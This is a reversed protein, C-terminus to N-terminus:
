DILVIEQGSDDTITTWSTEKKSNEDDDEPPPKVGEPVPFPKRHCPRVLYVKPSRNAFSAPQNSYPNFVFQEGGYVLTVRDVPLDVAKAVDAIIVNWSLPFRFLLTFEAESLFGVRIEQYM